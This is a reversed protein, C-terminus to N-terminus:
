YVPERSMGNYHSGKTQARLLMLACIPPCYITSRHRQLSDFLVNQYRCLTEIRFGILEDHRHFRFCFVFNLCKEPHLPTGQHAVFASALLDMKFRIILVYIHSQASSPSSSEYLKIAHFKIGLKGQHIPTHAPGVAVENKKTICNLTQM